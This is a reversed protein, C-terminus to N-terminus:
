SNKRRLFREFQAWRKEREEESLQVKVKVKEGIVVYTEDVKGEFELSHVFNRKAEFKAIEEVEANSVFKVNGCKKCKQYKGGEIVVDMLEWDVCTHYGEEQAPKSFKYCKFCYYYNHSISYPITYSCHPCIRGGLKINPHGEWGRLDQYSMPEPPIGNGTLVEKEKERGKLKLLYEPLILKLEPNQDLVWEWKEQSIGEWDELEEKTLLTEGSLNKTVEIMEWFYDEDIRTVGLIGARLFKSSKGVQDEGCVLYNTSRNLSSDAIGGLEEVIERARDRTVKLTGTFMFSKGKVEDL